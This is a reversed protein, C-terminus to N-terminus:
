SPFGERYLIKNEDLDIEKCLEKFEELIWYVEASIYKGKDYFHAEEYGIYETKQIKNYWKKIEKLQKKTLVEKRIIFSCSSSNSVFCNRIKM